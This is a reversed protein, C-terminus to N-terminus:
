VTGIVEMYLMFQQRTNCPVSHRIDFKSGTDADTCCYTNNASGSVLILNKITSTILIVKHFMTPWWVAICQQM